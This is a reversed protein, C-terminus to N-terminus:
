VVPWRIQQGPPPIRLRDLARDPRLRLLDQFVLEATLSPGPEDRARAADNYVPPPAPFLPVDLSQRPARGGIECIANITLCSLM